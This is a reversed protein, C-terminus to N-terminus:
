LSRQIQELWARRAALAEQADKIKKADGAATAAALDQELAAIAAELQSTAGEVRARTEPNSRRWESDEADRVAQEVARMRAEVRAMDARPVRGIADWRDQLVRLQSRAAKVDSIPLLAEVETLLELKAELNKGYEADIVKNQADRADFFEQQAARFREWLSDDDKRRARGAAKWQNMLERFEGSASGWDTSTKLVEARAILAEKAKKAQDQVSDLEAFYARRNKDFTARAKAFRRWLEDEKAKDIRPGSRQANKWQELLTRLEEASNKWQTRSTDQAAVAEASEVIASRAAFAEERAAQREAQIEAKRAVAREEALAFTRRLAEMDGVAAPEALQEKLGALAQDIEKPSIHGLRSEFLKVQAELDLYRRVYFALAEDVDADPFQGVQREGSTERVWVTGDADVRGWQAAEAAAKPDMPVERAAPKPAVPAGAAAPPAPTPVPAAESAPTTTTPQSETM